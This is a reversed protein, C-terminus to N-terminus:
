KLGQKAMLNLYPTNNAKEEPQNADLDGWGIDDALIIIFNPRESSNDVRAGHQSVTHFLLGCLLIGTLLFLTFPEAMKPWFRGLTVCTENLGDPACCAFVSCIHRYVFYVPYLAFTLMIRFFYLTPFHLSSMSYPLGPWNTRRVSM